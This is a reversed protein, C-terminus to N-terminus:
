LLCQVPAFSYACSLSSCQQFPGVGVPEAVSPCVLIVLQGLRCSLSCALLIVNVNLGLSVLRIFSFVDRLFQYEKKGPAGCVALKMEILMRCLHSDQTDLSCM